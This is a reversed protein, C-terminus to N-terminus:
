YGNAPEAFQTQLRIRCARMLMAGTTTGRAEALVEYSVGLSSLRSGRHDRVGGRGALMIRM